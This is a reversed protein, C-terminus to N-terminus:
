PVLLRRLEVGAAATGGRPVLLGSVQRRRDAVQPLDPIAGLRDPQEPQEAGVHEAAAEEGSDLRAQLIKTVLAQQTTM